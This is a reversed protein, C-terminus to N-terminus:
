EQLLGAIRDGRLLQGQLRECLQALLLCRREGAEIHEPHKRNDHDCNNENYQQHFM